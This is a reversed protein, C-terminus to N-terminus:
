QGTWVVKELSTFGFDAVWLFFICPLVAVQPFLWAWHSLILGCKECGTVIEPPWPPQRNVKRHIDEGQQRHEHRAQKQVELNAPEAAEFRHWTRCRNM